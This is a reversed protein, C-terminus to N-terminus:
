LGADLFAEADPPLSSRGYCRAISELPVKSGDPRTLLQELRRDTGTEEALKRRVASLDEGARVARLLNPYSVYLIAARAMTDLTETHGTCSQVALLMGWANAIRKIMRPNPPLVEHYAALLHRARDEAAAATAEAQVRSVEAALRDRRDLDPHDIAEQLDANRHGLHAAADLASAVREQAERSRRATLHNASSRQSDRASFGTALDIMRQTQVVSLEPILVSHDFIKHLFDGGLRTEPRADKFSEFVDVFASRLWDGDALVLVLLPAPSSWRRVLSPDAPARMLTHVSRMLQVVREAECRDLEDVVLLLPRRTHAKALSMSWFVHDALVITALLLPEWLLEWLPVVTAAASLVPVSACATFVIRLAGHRRPHRVAYWSLYATGAVTSAVVLTLGHPRQASYHHIALGAALWAVSVAVLNGTTNDAARQAAPSRPSWRRLWAIMAIVSGLPNEETRLHLRGLAPASWFLARALTSSLVAAASLATVGTALSKLESSVKGSALLYATVLFIITSSVAVPSRVFRALGGFVTMAMRTWGARAHRVARNLATSLSWWDPAVVSERWADYGAVVPMLLERAPMRVFRGPSQGSAGLRKRLLQVLTSKGSGWPGDVHVVVVDNRPDASLQEYIGIIHAALIQRELQDEVFVSDITAAAPTTGRVKSGPGPQGTAAVIERFTAPQEEAPTDIPWIVISGDDSGSVVVMGTAVELTVVTWVWDKHARMPSCIEAAFELHWVRVTSDYGGTVLLHRRSPAGAIAQVRDEHGTLCVSLLEGTSADWLRVAKDFGGSAIVSRGERQGVALARVAGEHGTMPDGIPAGSAASWRRVTGDHAASIIIDEGDATGFALAQIRDTHGESPSGLAEGSIADWRRIVADNGASAILSGSAAQGMVVSRLPGQHGTLPEGLANGTAADWRHIRSDYGVSAILSRGQAQGLFVSRVWGQHGMLPAGIPEGTLPNWMRVLADYGGSVVVPEAGVFGASVGMVPASHAALIRLGESGNQNPNASSSELAM